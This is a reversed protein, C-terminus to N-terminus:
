GNKSVRAAADPFVFHAMLLYSFIAVPLVLVAQSLIKDDLLLSLWELSKLNVGYILLYSLVFRPVRDLGFNRFVYKGTTFFNFAMGTMMGIMLALWLSAGALICVSYVAFGFVTNVLGAILFRM